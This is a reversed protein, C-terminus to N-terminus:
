PNLKTQYERYIAQLTSGELLNVSLFPLKPWDDMSIVGPQRIFKYKFGFVAFKYGTGLLLSDIRPDSLNIPSKSAGREYSKDNISIQDLFTDYIKGIIDIRKGPPVVVLDIGKIITGAKITNFTETCLLIPFRDIFSRDKTPKSDTRYSFFYVEGPVFPPRFKYDPNPKTFYTEKFFDNTEQSTNKGPGLSEKYESVLNAYM